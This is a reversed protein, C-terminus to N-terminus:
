PLHYELVALDQRAMASSGRREVMRKAYMGNLTQRADRDTVGLKEAVDAVTMWGYIQLAALVLKQRPTVGDVM